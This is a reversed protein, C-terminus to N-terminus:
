LTVQAYRVPALGLGTDALFDGLTRGCRVRRRGFTGPFTERAMEAENAEAFAAAAFVDDVYGPAPATDRLGAMALATEREGAEAFGVAAFVDDLWRRLSCAVGCSGEIRLATERDGAEAFAIACCTDEINRIRM